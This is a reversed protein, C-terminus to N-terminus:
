LFGELLSLSGYLKGVESAHDGGEGRVQHERRTYVELAVANLAPAYGSGLEGIVSFAIFAWGNNPSAIGMVVFSVLHVLLSLRALSLDFM